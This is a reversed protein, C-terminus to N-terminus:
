ELSSKGKHFLKHKIYLKIAYFISNTLAPLYWLNVKNFAFLLCLRFFQCAVSSSIKVIINFLTYINNVINRGKMFGYQTHHILKLLVINLRIAMIKALVKYDCNLLSLPRWNKLYMPNCGTKELLTIIGRRASLNM